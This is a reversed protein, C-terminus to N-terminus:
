RSSSSTTVGGSVIFTMVKSAPLDLPEVQGKDVIILNGAFNYSQPLYVAVQDELSLDELSDCTIFGILKVTRESNLYVTVPKDFSKKEGFFANFFDKLTNYLMKVLPIREMLNDIQNMLFRTLYLRGAIGTLIIVALTFIIGLFTTLLTSELSPFFSTILAGSASFITEDLVTFILYVLYITLVFPLLILLGQFFLQLLSKM